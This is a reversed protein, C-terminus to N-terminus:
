SNSFMADNFCQMTLFLCRVGRALSPCLASFCPLSLLKNVERMWFIMQYFIHSPCDVFVHLPSLTNVEMMMMMMMMVVMMITMVSALNFPYEGGDRPSVPFQLNAM